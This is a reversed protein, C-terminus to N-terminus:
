FGMNVNEAFWDHTNLWLRRWRRWPRVAPAAGPWTPRTRVGWATWPWASTSWLWSTPRRRLTTRPRPRVTTVTLPWLRTRFRPWSVRLPLRAISRGRRTSCTTSSLPFRRWWIERGSAWISRVSVLAISVDDVFVFLFSTSAFFSRFSREIIYTTSMLWLKMNWSFVVFNVNWKTWHM